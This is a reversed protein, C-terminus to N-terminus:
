DSELNYGTFRKGTKRCGPNDACSFGGRDATTNPLAFQRMQIIIGLLVSKKLSFDPPQRLRKSFMLLRAKEEAGKLPHENRISVMSQAILALRPHAFHFGRPFRLLDCSSLSILQAQLGFQAANNPCTTGRCMRPTFKGFHPVIRTGFGLPTLVKLCSIFREMQLRAFKRIPVNLGIQRSHGDNRRFKQAEKSLASVGLGSFPSM